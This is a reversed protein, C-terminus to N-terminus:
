SLTRRPASDLRDLLPALTKLIAIEDGRARETPSQETARKWIETIFTPDQGTELALYHAPDTASKPM